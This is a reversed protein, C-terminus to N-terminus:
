GLLAAVLIFEEVLEIEQNVRDLAEKVLHKNGRRGLIEAKSLEIVSRHINDIMHHLDTKNKLQKCRNYLITEVGSWELSNSIKM